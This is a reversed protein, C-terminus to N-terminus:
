RSGPQVGVEGNNLSAPRGETQVGRRWVPGMDPRGCTQNAGLPEWDTAALGTQDCPPGVSFTGKPSREAQVLDRCRSENLPPLVQEAPCRFLKRIERHGDREGPMGEESQATKKQYAYAIRVSYLLPLDNPVCDWVGIGIFSAPRGRMRLAMRSVGGVSPSPNRECACSASSLEQGTPSKTLKTGRISTTGWVTSGLALLRAELSTWTMGGLAILLGTM